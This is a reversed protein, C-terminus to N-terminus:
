WLCPVVEGLEAQDDGDVSQLRLMVLAAFGGGVFANEVGDALTEHGNVARDGALDGAAGSVEFFEEAEPAVTGLYLAIQTLRNVGCCPASPGSIRVGDM